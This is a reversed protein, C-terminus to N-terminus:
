KKKTQSNKGASCIKNQLIGTTSLPEIKMWKSSSKMGWYVIAKEDYNITMSTFRGRENICDIENMMLEYNLIDLKDPAENISKLLSFWKKKGDKNFITKTWVRIINENVKKISSKDYYEDGFTSKMYYVWDAAWAQNSCLSFIVLCIISKINMIKIM